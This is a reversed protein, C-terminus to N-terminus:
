LRLDASRPVTERVNRRSRSIACGALDGLDEAAPDRLLQLSFQVRRQFLDFVAMVDKARVPLISEDFLILLKGRKQAVLNARVVEGVKPQLFAQIVQLSHPLLKKFHRVAESTQLGLAKVDVDIKRKQLPKRQWDGDTGRLKGAYVDM